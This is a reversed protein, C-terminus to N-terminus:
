DHQEGLSALAADIMNQWIRKMAPKGFRTSTKLAAELMEDTPERMAQLTEVLGDQAAKQKDLASLAADAATAAQEDTLAVGHKEYLAIEIDVSVSGIMWERSRGDQAPLTSGDLEGTNPDRGCGEPCSLNLGGCSPCTSKYHPSFPVPCVGECQSWDDGGEEGCKPCEEIMCWGM